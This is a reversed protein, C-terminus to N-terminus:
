IQTRKHLIERRSILNLMYKEFDPKHLHICYWVQVDLSKNFEDESKEFKKYLLLLKCKLFIKVYTVYIIYDVIVMIVYIIYDVIKMITDKFTNM